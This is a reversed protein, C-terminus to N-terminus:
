ALARPARASTFRGCTIIQEARAPPLPVKERDKKKRRQERGLDLPKPRNEGNEENELKEKAKKPLVLTLSSQALTLTSFPNSSKKVRHRSFHFINYQVLPIQKLKRKM